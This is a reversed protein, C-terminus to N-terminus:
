SNNYIKSLTQFVGKFIPNKKSNINGEFCYRSVIQIADQVPQSIIWLNQIVVSVCTTIVAQMYGLLFLRWDQKCIRWYILVQKIKFLLGSRLIGYNWM